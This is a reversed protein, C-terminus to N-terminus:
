AILYYLGTLQKLQSKKTYIANDWIAEVKYKKNGKNGVDLELVKKNMWKEKTIDQKLLSIYFFNHIDKRKLLKLKYAQKSVPYLM